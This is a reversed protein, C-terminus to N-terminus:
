DSYLLLLSFLCFLISAADTRFCAIYGSIDFSVALNHPTTGEEEKLKLNSTIPIGSRKTFCFYGWIKM